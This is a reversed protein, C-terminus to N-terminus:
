TCVRAERKIDRGLLKIVMKDNGDGVRLKLDQDCFISNVEGCLGPNNLKNFLITELCFVTHEM